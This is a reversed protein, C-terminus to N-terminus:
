KAKLKVALHIISGFAESLIPYYVCQTSKIKAIYLESLSHEAAARLLMNRYRKSPKYTQKSDSLYILSKASVSKGEVQAQVDIIQYHEPESKLIRALDAATVRHVVGEVQEEANIVINAFGPELFNIGPLNFTLGYGEVTAPKTELARVQRINALYRASMNAGYAFYLEYETQHEM